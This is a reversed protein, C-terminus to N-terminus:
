RGLGIDDLSNATVFRDLYTDLESTTRSAMSLTVSISSNQFNMFFVLPARSGALKLVGYVYANCVFTEASFDYNQYKRHSSSMGSM